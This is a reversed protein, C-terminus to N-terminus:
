GRAPRRRTTRGISALVHALVALLLVNMAWLPLEISGEAFRSDRFAAMWAPWRCNVAALQWAGLGAFVAMAIRDYRAPNRLAARLGLGIITASVALTALAMPFDRAMWCLPFIWFAAGLAGGGLSLWIARREAEPSAAPAAIAVAPAARRGLWLIGQLLGVAYLSALTIQGYLSGSLQPALRALLAQAALFVAAWACTLLLVAV